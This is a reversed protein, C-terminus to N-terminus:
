EELADQLQKNKKKLHITYATMVIVFLALIGSLWEAKFDVERGYASLVKKKVMKEQLMIPKAMVDYTDAAAVSGNRTYPLKRTFSSLLNENEQNVMRRNEKATTLAGDINQATGEYSKDMSEQLSNISDYHKEELEQIYNQDAETKKNVRDEIQFVGSQIRSQIESLGAEESSPLPSYHELEQTYEDYTGEFEDLEKGLLEQLYIEQAELKKIFFDDFKQNFLEVSVVAGNNLRDIQRSCFDVTQLSVEDLAGDINGKYSPMSDLFDRIYDDADPNGSVPSANSASAVIPRIVEEDRYTQWLIWRIENLCDEEIYLDELEEELKEYVGDMSLMVMNYDREALWDRDAESPTAGAAKSTEESTQRCFDSRRKAAASPTASSPTADPLGASEPSAERSHSSKKFLSIDSSTKGKSGKAQSPTSPAAEPPAALMSYDFSQRWGELRLNYEERQREHEKGIGDLWTNLGEEADSPTAADSSSAVPDRRAIWQFADASVAREEELARNHDALEELLSTLGEKYLVTGEETELLSIQEITTHFGEMAETVIKGKDLIEELDQRAWSIYTNYEENLEDVADGVNKYGKGLDIYVPEEGAMQLEVFELPQLLQELTIANLSELDKKDNELIIGANNQGSHFEELISYLYLYSIDTNLTTEFGKIDYIINLAIEDQLNPNIGYELISKQPVTNISWVNESFDSPIIIYAAYKGREIGSRADELSASYFNSGTFRVMETGYNVAKEDLEIGQDMNVVAIAQISDKVVAAGKSLKRGIGIGLQLVTFLCLALAGIIWISKKMHSKM